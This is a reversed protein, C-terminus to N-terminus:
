LSRGRVIRSVQRKHIISSKYLHPKFPSLRVIRPKLGRERLAKKLGGVFINQDYGLCIVDPAIVEIVRYPDRVYGLIARDVLPSAQVTKLRHTENHTPECHKYRRVNVDRAVVVTLHTGHLRAQRFLDQHGEHFFDFTGFCLTKTRKNRKM